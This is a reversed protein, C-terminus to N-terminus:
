EKDKKYYKLIITSVLTLAVMLFILKILNHIHFSPSLFESGIIFISGLISGVQIPLIRVFLSVILAIIGMTLAIYWHIAQAEKRDKLLLEDRKKRVENLRTNTETIEVKLQDIRNQLEKSLEPTKDTQISLLTLEKKRNELVEDWEKCLKNQFECSFDETSPLPFVLNSFTKFIFFLLVAFAMTLAYDRLQYLEAYNYKM